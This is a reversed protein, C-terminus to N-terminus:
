NFVEWDRMLESPIPRGQRGERVIRVLPFLIRTLPDMGFTAREGITRRRLIWRVAHRFTRRRLERSHTELIKEYAKLWTEAATEWRVVEGVPHFKFAVARSYGADALRRERERVDWDYRGEAVLLADGAGLIAKNINRKSFETGVRTRALLLGMGRNVLYRTAESFLLSSPERRRLFGLSEAKGYIPVFGRLFEQIMIRDEDRRFDRHNKARCFDVQFGEGFQPAYTMSVVDLAVAIDDKEHESAGRALVFFDLDNYLPSSGEGRGYGGGLYVGELKPLNLAAIDRGMQALTAVLAAETKEDRVGTYRHARLEEEIAPFPRPFAGRKIDASLGAETLDVFAGSYPDIVRRGSVIKGDVDMNKGVYTGPFIISHNLRTGRDIVVGAGLSAGGSIRVGRELRLNDGLLVPALVEVDPKMVVNMGAYVGSEASYGPLVLDGPEKLISFNVEFYAKLSDITHGGVTNDLIFKVEGKSMFGAHRSIQERITTCSDTGTYTLNLGWRSGDGIRQALASDYCWDLVLIDTAGENACSDIQYELIPKGCVPLSAISRDPFYTGVWKCNAMDAYPIIIAKM